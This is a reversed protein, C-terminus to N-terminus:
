ELSLSFFLSGGKGAKLIKNRRYKKVIGPLKTALTFSAAVRRKTKIRKMWIRAVRQIASSSLSATNQAKM